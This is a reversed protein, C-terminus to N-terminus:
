LSAVEVALFPEAQSETELNDTEVSDLCIGGNWTEPDWEQNQHEVIDARCSCSILKRWLRWPLEWTKLGHSSSLISSGLSTIKEEYDNLSGWSFGNWGVTRVTIKVVMVNLAATVQVGLAHTETPVKDCDVVPWQKITIGSCTMTVLIGNCRFQCPAASHAWVYLFSWCLKGSEDRHFQRPVVGTNIREPLTRDAPLCLM